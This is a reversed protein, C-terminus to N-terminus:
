FSTSERIILETGISVHRSIAQPNRTKEMLLECATLGINYRPQNVTTLTPRTIVSTEINDFGIVMIDTPININLSNCANIAAAGFIDSVCFIADPRPNNKLLPYIASETAYYNIDSLQVVLNEDYKIGADSLASKYGQFRLRAYSNSLDSNIFAIRQRGLSILYNIAKRSAEVDNIAVSFTDAELNVECCQVVPIKSNLKKLLKTEVYTMIIIGKIYGASIYKFINNPNEADLINRGTFFVNQGYRAAVSCIGSIIDAFFPNNNTNTEIILITPPYNSSIMQSQNYIKSVDLGMTGMATYVKERTEEKVVFPQNLVRSVTAISVGAMEAIQTHLIRRNNEKM